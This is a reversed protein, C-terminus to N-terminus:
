KAELPERQGYGMPPNGTPAAWHAANKLVRKINEDYYTPYTEHGPQFYFIKGCGYHYCCGSRLGSHLVVLGMGERVRVAIKEVLEDPVQDHAMHGWWFLVDTEALREDSLGHEPMDLTATVAALGEDEMLGQAIAEHIGKPYVAAVKEDKKEHVYENWVTVRIPMSKM